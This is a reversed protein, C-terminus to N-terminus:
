VLSLSECDCVSDYVSLCAVRVFVSIEKGGGPWDVWRLIVSVLLFGTLVM